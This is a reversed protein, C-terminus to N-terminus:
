TDCQAQPEVKGRPKNVPSRSSITTPPLHHTPTPPQPQNTDQVSPRPLVKLGAGRACKVVEGQLLRAKNNTLDIWTMLTPVYGFGIKLEPHWQFVSGGYGMWGYYGLRGNTESTDDEEYEAVGGQTFRVNRVLLMGDTPADHLAKWGTPSLMTYGKFSGGHAM